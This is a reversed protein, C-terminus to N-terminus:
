FSLYLIKQFIWGHLTSSIMKTLFSILIFFPFICKCCHNASRNITGLRGQGIFSCKTKGEGIFDKFTACLVPSRLVNRKVSNQWVNNLSLFPKEKGKRFQTSAHLDNRCSTKTLSLSGFISSNCDRKLPPRLPLNKKVMVWVAYSLCPSM